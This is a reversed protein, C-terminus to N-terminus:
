NIKLLEELESSEAFYFDHIEWGNKKCVADIYGDQIIIQSSESLIHFDKIETKILRNVQRMINKRHKKSM